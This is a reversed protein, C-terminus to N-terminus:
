CIFLSGRVCFVATIPPFLIVFSRVLDSAFGSRSPARRIGIQRLRNLSLIAVTHAAFNKLHDATPFTRPASKTIPSRKLKVMHIAVAVFLFTTQTQVNPFKASPDFFIRFSGARLIL